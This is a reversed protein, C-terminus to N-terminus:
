PWTKISACHCTCAASWGNWCFSTGSQMGWFIIHCPLWFFLCCWKLIEAFLAADTWEVIPDLVDLTFESQSSSYIVLHDSQFWWLKLAVKNFPRLQYWMFLTLVTKIELDFSNLLIIFQVYHQSMNHQWIGECEREWDCVCVCEKECGGNNCHGCKIWDGCGSGAVSDNAYNNCAPIKPILTHNKGFANDCQRVQPVWCAWVWTAEWRSM